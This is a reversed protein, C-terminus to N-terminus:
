RCLTKGATRRKEMNFRQWVDPLVVGKAGVKRGVQLPEIVGAAFGGPYQTHLMRWCAFPLGLPSATDTM